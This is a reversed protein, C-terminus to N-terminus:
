HVARESVEEFRIPLAGTELVIALNRADEITQGNGMDIEANPGPIGGPNRKFDIYPSSELRGDLVIAFHQAYNLYSGRRGALDYRQRGRQAEARTIGLFRNSGPKTFQLLVVPAGFPGVDAKTGSPVLDAGTLEPVPDPRRQPLYKLLYYYTGDPSLRGQRIGLCGNVQPCAIAITNAPLALVEDGTPVTGGYPRLIAARTTSPGAIPRRAKFLYYAEPPAKAAQAKVAGLLGFLTPAAVPYGTADLSPGTLDREFDFMLLGGTVALPRAARPTVHAGDIRVVILNGPKVTVTGTRGLKRLRARVIDASHALEAPTVTRQGLNPVARLTIVVGPGGRSQLSHGGCGAVAVCVAASAITLRRKM